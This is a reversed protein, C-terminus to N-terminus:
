NIPIPVEDSATTKEKPIVVTLVGDKLQATFKKGVAKYPLQVTKDFNGRYRESLQYGDPDDPANRDVRIRVASTGALSVALNKKDVGPLDVTVTMETESARIDTAGFGGKGGMGPSNLNLKNVEEVIGSEKVAKQLEGYFEKFEKTAQGVQQATQAMTRKLEERQQPTIQYTSANTPQAAPAPVYVSTVNKAVPTTGQQNWPDNADDQQACGTGGLMLVALVCLGSVKVMPPYSYIKM